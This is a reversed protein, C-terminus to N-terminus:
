RLGIGAGARDPRPLQSHLRALELLRERVHGKAPASRRSIPDVHILMQEGTAAPKEDGERTIVHHLHLRKDDAGLVQTLVQIRDGAYLEQLHTLHTEATYYNGSDSRYQGDIGIYQLLTETANNVLKLYRSQIVHGSYDVWHSPVELTPMRLPGSRNTLQRARDSLAREWRAVTEGPGYGQSRLAQLLAVIFDDRKEEAPVNLAHCKVLVDVQEAAKDLFARDIDPKDTLRSWPWKFASQEINQRVGKGGAIRCSVMAAHCLAWSYRVADDVDQLTAVEDHVLWLAERAVTDQLRNVIFGDVEKRVVLPHMGIAKYIAAAREVAGPATREGACLEILPLLYVPQVPHAVLLCDPHEMEAQLLSPRFGSTSSCILTSPAAARSAAALLQQKLELREPASEQVLDVGRVADAISEVAMLSGEPPLPMVTLKRYARRADDLMKQVRGATGPSPGYLRVDVGNLLFRAAWGSGIVGGGLLGVARPLKESVNSSELM